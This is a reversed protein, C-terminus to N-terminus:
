IVSATDTTEMYDVVRVIDKVRRFIEDNRNIITLEYYAETDRSDLGLSITFNYIGNNGYRHIETGIEIQEKLPKDLTAINENLDKITYRYSGLQIVDDIFVVKPDNSDTIQIHLSGQMATNAVVPRNVDSYDDIMADINEKFNSTTFNNFNLVTAPKDIRRAQISFNEPMLTKKTPNTELQVDFLKRSLKDM